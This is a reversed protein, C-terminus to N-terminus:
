REMYKEKFGDSTVYSLFGKFESETFNNKISIESALKELHGYLCDLSQMYSQFGLTCIKEIGSELAKDYALQKYRKTQDKLEDIKKNLIVIGMNFETQNIM